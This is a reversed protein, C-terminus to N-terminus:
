GCSGFETRTDLFEYELTKEPAKFIFAAFLFTKLSICFTFKFYM